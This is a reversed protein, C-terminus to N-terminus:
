VHSGQARKQTKILLGVEHRQLLLDLNKQILAEMRQSLQGSIDVQRGLLHFQRLKFLSGFQRQIPLPEFDKCAERAAADTLQLAAHAKHHQFAQM